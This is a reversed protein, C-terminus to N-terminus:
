LTAVICGFDPPKDSSLLTTGGFIGFLKGLFFLLVASKRSKITKYRETATVLSEAPPFRYLLPPVNYLLPPFSYLLLPFIYCVLPTGYLYFLLFFIGFFNADFFV